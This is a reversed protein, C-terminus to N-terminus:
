VTGAQSTGDRVQDSWDSIFHASWERLVGYFVDGDIRQEAISCATDAPIEMNQFAIVRVEDEVDLQLVYSGDDFAADGDPAWQIRAADIVSIFESKTLGLYSALPRDRYVANLFAEVIVPASLGSLLPVQHSGRRRLRGIVEEFSCALLSADPRKVGFLRGGVYIVFYGLARESLSPLVATIVSEIALRDKSGVLM